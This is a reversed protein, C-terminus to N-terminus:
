RRAPENASSQARWYQAMMAFSVLGCDFGADNAPTQTQERFSCGVPGGDNIWRTDARQEPGDLIVVPKRWQDKDSRALKALSFAIKFVGFPADRCGFHFHAAQV